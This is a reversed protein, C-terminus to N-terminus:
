PMDNRARREEATRGLAQPEPCTLLRLDHSSVAEGGFLPPECHCKQTQSFGSASRAERPQQQLCLIYVIILCRCRVLKVCFLADFSANNQTDVIMKTAELWSM